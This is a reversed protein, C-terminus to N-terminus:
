RIAEYAPIWDSVEDLKKLEDQDFKIELAVLNSELQEVSNVGIIPATIFDKTLIWALAVQAVTVEKNEAIEEVTDLVKLRHETFYRKKVSESRPSEPLPANRSYKGSLFGGALPSYSIVGLNYKKIVNYMQHEVLMRRVISYPPQVTEFRVYGNKESVWFSEVLMWPHINSAGIYNVLGKEVLLNLAHLTEEIKTDNDFSHIQYLDIWETQLRKLSGNIAQWIHRRSLGQDNIDKSMAGRVKSALILDERVARDKLWEGIIKETKGPYSNDAWYSYIDATDFCNIGLELAKDMIAFSEEKEVRWGFQMTGLVLPSIKIGTSGLRKYEM